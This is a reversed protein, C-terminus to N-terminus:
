TFEADKKLLMHLNATHKSLQLIFLSLYTVMGLFDQLEAKTQPDELSKIDYVKSPDPRVGNRDYVMGFFMIHPTKVACNQSKFMLRNHAAVEVLKHLNADDEQETKCFVVINDAIGIGLAARM